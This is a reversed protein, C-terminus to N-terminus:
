VQDPDKEVILAKEEALDVIEITGIIALVQVLNRYVGLRHIQSLQLHFHLAVV